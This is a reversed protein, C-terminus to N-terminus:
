DEDCSWAQWIPIRLPKAPGKGGGKAPPVVIEIANRAELKRMLDPDTEWLFTVDGRQPGWATDVEIPVYREFLGEAAFGSLLWKVVPVSQTNGLMHM